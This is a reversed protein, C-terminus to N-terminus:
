KNLASRLVDESQRVGLNRIDSPAARMPRNCSPRWRAMVTGNACLPEDICQRRRTVGSKGRRNEVRYRAASVAPPPTEARRECRWRPAPLASSALSGGREGCGRHLAAQESM